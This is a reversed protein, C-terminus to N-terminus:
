RKNIRIILQYIEEFDFEELNATFGIKNLQAHAEKIIRIADSLDGGNGPLPIPTDIITNIKSETTENILPEPQPNIESVSPELQQKFIEDIKPIEREEEGIENVEPIFRNEEKAVVPATYNLNTIEPQVEPEVNDDEGQPKILLTNIDIKKRSPNIDTAEQKIKSVDIEAIDELIELQETAIEGRNEPLSVPGQVLSKILQDTEKVTLKNNIINNLINRQQEQDEIALLSRAHRESIRRNLLASQVEEDLKLLRLKNAVTAQTKGMKDALQEQTLYGKALLKEYSKAEEIASLDKRQINEVVAIEASKNDDLNMVVAPITTLGAINAAKLRREGAVVEYRDDVERVVLPQIIGHEKISTALENLERENFKLRPQFRNPIIDDTHINLIQKGLNGNM